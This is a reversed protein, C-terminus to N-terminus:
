AETWKLIKKERLAQSVKKTTEVPSLVFYQNNTEDKKLFRGGNKQITAILKRSLNTKDAKATLEQYQKKHKEIMGRYRKTGGHRNSKGGRECIVDRETIERESIYHQPTPPAAAKKSSSGGRSSSSTSSSRPKTKQNKTRKKLDELINLQAQVDLISTNKDDAHDASDHGTASPPPIGPNAGNGNAAM